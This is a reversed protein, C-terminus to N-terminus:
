FLNKTFKVLPMPNDHCDAFAKRDIAMSTVLVILTVDLNNVFFFLFVGTRHKSKLIDSLLNIKQLFRM